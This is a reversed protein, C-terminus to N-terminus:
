LLYTSINQFPKLGCWEIFQNYTKVKEDPCHKALWQATPLGMNNNNLDNGNIYGIKNFEKKFIDVYKNYFEIQSRPRRFRNISDPEGLFEKVSVNNQKLLKSTFEWSPLNNFNNFDIVTPTHKNNNKFDKVLIYLDDLSLKDVLKYNGNLLLDGKVKYGKERFYDQWNDINYNNKIYSNLKYISSIIGKEILYKGKPIINNEKCIIEIEILTDNTILM